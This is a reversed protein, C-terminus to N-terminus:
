KKSQEADRDKRIAGIQRGISDLRTEIVAFQIKNAIATERLTVLEKDISILVRITMDRHAKIEQRNDWWQWVFLVVVIVGLSLGGLAKALKLPGFLGEQAISGVDAVAPPAILVSGTGPQTEHASIIGSDAPTSPHKHDDEPIDRKVDIAHGM